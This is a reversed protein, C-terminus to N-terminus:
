DREKGKIIKNYFAIISSNHLNEKIDVYNIPVIIIFPPPFIVKDFFSVIFKIIIINVDM